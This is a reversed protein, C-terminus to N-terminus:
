FIQSIQHKIALLDSEEDLRAVCNMLNEIKPPKVISMNSRDVSQFDGFENIQKLFDTTKDANSEM